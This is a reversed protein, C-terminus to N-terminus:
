CPYNVANTVIKGTMGPSTGRLNASSPLAQYQIELQKTLLLKEHGHSDWDPLREAIQYGHRIYFDPAQFSMTDVCAYECGRRRAEEEAVDLLRGGVRHRRWEVRVAM